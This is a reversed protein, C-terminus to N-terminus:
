TCWALIQVIIKNKTVRPVPSPFVQCGARMQEGEGSVAATVGDLIRFRCGGGRRYLPHYRGGGARGVPGCTSVSAGTRNRRSPVLACGSGKINVLRPLRAVPVRSSILPTGYQLKLLKLAIRGPVNQLHLRLKQWLIPKHPAPVGGDDKEHFELWTNM